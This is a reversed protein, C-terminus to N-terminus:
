RPSYKNLMLLFEAAAAPHQAEKDRVIQQNSLRKGYLQKQDLDDRLTAGGVSLGAFV